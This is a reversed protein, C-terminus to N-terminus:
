CEEKKWLLMGTLKKAQVLAGQIIRDAGYAAVIAIFPIAPFRYRYMSDIFLFICFAFVAIIILWLVSGKRFLRNAMAAITGTLFLATPMFNGAFSLIGPLSKLDIKWVWVGLFAMARKAYLVSVHEWNNIIFSLVLSNGINIRYDPRYFYDLSTSKDYVWGKAYVNYLVLKANYQLSTILPDLKHDLYLYAGAALAAVLSCGILRKYRLFYDVATKRDLRIAIYVLMVAMVVLGTPRFVTMYLSAVIFLIRYLRKDSEMAMVLLYVCLLLLSVFFSDSLIYLSWLTIDWASIYFLSAILATTRNFLLAALKYVLIVSLGATIGQLLVVYFPDKFIALLLTLLGNYGLYLLDNIDLGDSIHAMMAKTYNIYWQSDQCQPLGRGSSVRWFIHNLIKYLAVVALPITFIRDSDKVRNCVEAV